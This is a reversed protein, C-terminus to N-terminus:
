SVYYVHLKINMLFFSFWCSKELGKVKVCEISTYQFM